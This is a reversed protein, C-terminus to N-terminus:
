MYIRSCIMGSIFVAAIFRKPVTDAWRNTTGLISMLSEVHVFDLSEGEDVDKSSIKSPLDEGEEEEDEEEEEEEEEEEDDEEEEGDDEEENDDDSQVNM